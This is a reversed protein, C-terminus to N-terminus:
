NQKSHTFVYGRQMFKRGSRLEEEDSEFDIDEDTEGESDRKQQDDEDDSAEDVAEIIKQLYSIDYVYAIFYWHHIWSKGSTPPPVLGVPRVLRNNPWKKGVVAHFHLCKPGPPPACGERGM